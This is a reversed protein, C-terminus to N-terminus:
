PPATPRDGELLIPPIEIKEPRTAARRFTTTAGGNPRKLRRTTGADGSAARKRRQATETEEPAASKLRRKTGTEGTAARKVRRTTGTEEAKASKRRPMIETGGPGVRKTASDKSRAVGSATSAPKIKATTPVSKEKM